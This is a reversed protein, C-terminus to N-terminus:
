PINNREAWRKVKQNVVYGLGLEQSIEKIFEMNDVKSTMVLAGSLYFPTSVGLLILSM